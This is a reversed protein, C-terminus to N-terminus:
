SERGALGEAITMAADFSECQQNHIIVPNGNEREFQCVSYFKAGKTRSHEEVQVNYDDTTWLRPKLKM